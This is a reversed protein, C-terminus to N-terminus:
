FSLFIYGKFQKKLQKALCVIERMKRQTNHIIYMEKKEWKLIYHYWFYCYVCYEYFGPTTSNPSHIRISLQCFLNEMNCIFVVSFRRVVLQISHVHSLWVGSVLCLCCCFSCWIFFVKRKSKKREASSLNISFYKLYVYLNNYLFSVVAAATTTAVAAAM